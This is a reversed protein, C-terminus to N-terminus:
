RSWGCNNCRTLFQEKSNVSVFENSHCGAFIIRTSQITWQVYISPQISPNISAYRVFLFFLVSLHIYPHILLHICVCVFISMYM